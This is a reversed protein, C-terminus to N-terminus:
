WFIGCRLPIEKICTYVSGAASDSVDKSGAEVGEDELRKWSTEPHDIKGKENIILEKLERILIPNSPGRVLGMYISDKLTDYPATTKDVSLEGANIGNVLLRQIEGISNWGDYTVKFIKVGIKRLHLIFEIIDSFQIEGSRPAVLQLSFDVIAGKRLSTDKTSVDFGIKELFTLAKPHIRPIFEEPHSMTIGACDGGLLKKGKALDVHIACYRGALRQVFGDKFKISLISDTAIIDDVLQNEMMGDNFCWPILYKQKIYGGSKTVSDRCEYTWMAREPNRKYHRLYNSKSKNPNVEWAAARSSIIRPDNKGLKFEVSMACDYDYKFSMLILKGVKPFRSDITERVSTLQSRVQVSPSAGIEDAVVYFLNLGEGAYQRSNLSHCTINHPFEITNAQIAKGERLDVGLEDFFNRGTHPNKIRRVISKFNKFFVVKAQTQDKSVNIIDIPSDVGITGGGIIKDLGKQPDYMCLLKVVVLALMKAITRDKGAGKGWFAHAEDHETSWTLCDSGFLKEVLKQQLPYLPEYFWAKAPDTNPLGFFDTVTPPKIRWIESDIVLSTDVRSKIGGKVLNGFEDEDWDSKILGFAKELGVRYITEPTNIVPAIM